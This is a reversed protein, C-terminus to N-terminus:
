GQWVTTQRERVGCPSLCDVFLNVFIFSFFILNCVGGFDLALIEWTKCGAVSQFSTSSNQNSKKQKDEIKAFSIVVEFNSRFIAIVCHHIHVHFSYQCFFIVSFPRVQTARTRKIKKEKRKKKVSFVHPSKEFVINMWTGMHASHFIKEVAAALAFVVTVHMYRIYSQIQPEVLWVIARAWVCLCLSPALSRFRLMSNRQFRSLIRWDREDSLITHQPKQTNGSHKKTPCLHIAIRNLARPHTNHHRIFERACLCVCVGSSIWCYVRHRTDSLVRKPTNTCCEVDIACLCVRNACSILLTPTEAFYQWTGHTISIWSEIAAFECEERNMQLKRKSNRNMSRKSLRVFKARPFWVFIINLLPFNQTFNIIFDNRRIYFNLQHIKLKRALREKLM